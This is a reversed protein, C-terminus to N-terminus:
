HQPPTLLQVFHKKEKEKRKSCGEKYSDLPTEKFSNREDLKFDGLSVLYESVNYHNYYAAYHLGNMDQQDMDDSEFYEHEILYEVIELNGCLCASLFLSLNRNKNFRTKINQIINKKALNEIQETTIFAVDSSFSLITNQNSNELEKELVPKRLQAYVQYLRELEKLDVNKM